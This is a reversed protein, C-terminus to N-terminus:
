SHLEKKGYFRNWKYTSYNVFDRFSNYSFQYLCNTPVCLHLCTCVHKFGAPMKGWFLPSNALNGPLNQWKLDWFTIRTTSFQGRGCIYFMLGLIKSQWIYKRCMQKTDSSENIEYGSSFARIFLSSVLQVADASM